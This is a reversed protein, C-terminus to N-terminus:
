GSRLRKRYYMDVIPTTLLFIHKSASIQGQPLEAVFTSATRRQLFLDRDREFTPLVVGTGVSNVPVGSEPDARQSHVYEAIFFAERTRAAWLKVGFYLV